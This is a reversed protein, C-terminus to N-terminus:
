LGNRSRLTKQAINKQINMKALSCMCIVALSGLTHKIEPAIPHKSISIRAVWTSLCSQDQIQDFLGNRAHWCMLFHFPLGCISAWCSNDPNLKSNCYICSDTPPFFHALSSSISRDFILSESYDLAAKHWAMSHWPEMHWALWPSFWAMGYFNVCAMDYNNRTM